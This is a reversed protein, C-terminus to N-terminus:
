VPSVDAYRTRIGRPRHPVKRFGRGYWRYGTGLRVTESRRSSAARGRENPRQRATTLRMRDSQVTTTAAQTRSSAAVVSRVDPDSYASATVTPASRADTSFAGAVSRETRTM